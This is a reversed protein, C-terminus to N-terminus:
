FTKFVDNKAVFDTECFVEVLVAIRGNSHVYHGFWGQNTARGARGGAIEVGKKRLLTVARDLDGDSEALARKCDMFGASTKQRLEQVLRASITM